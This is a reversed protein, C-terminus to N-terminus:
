FQFYIFTTVDGFRDIIFFGFAMAVGQLVLPIASFRGQLVAMFREPVFQAAIMGVITVLLLPTVLTSPTSWGTLVRGFMSGARGLSEARFFVWAACVIHFTVLWGMVLSTPKSRAVASPREAWIREFALGVGHIAGWIVFRMAAGHWLGGLVMVLLLNLYTAIKPRVKGRLGPLNSGRNGGLPIYLYDRLWRSLSMHWRRWFSQLSAAIYPSDFNKPFRIGLLLALGIAIDTYGSFDCYIQVAYAYVSILTDIAGYSKPSAFVKDVSSKALYSAVVVKKFMGAMILRFARGADLHRPDPRQRLQPLFESARVIPGAVLHPFFSLYTAFDILRAPKVKGRHADIVYSLAQFIYFSIAVPLIVQQKPLWSLLPGLNDRFFNYYKFYGLIGLDFVVALTVWVRRGVGTARFTGVVFIQNMVTVAALLAPFQWRQWTLWGGKFAFVYFIYSAGITFLKWYRPQPRLLWSLFFVIPFFIGFQVTPFLVNTFV